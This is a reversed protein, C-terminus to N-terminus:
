LRQGFPCHDDAKYYTDTFDMKELRDSRITYGAAIIDVKESTLAGDLSEFAMDQIDLKLGLKDAVAKMVAADVGDVADGSRFEFPPFEANTGVTLTDDKVLNYKSSDDGSCGAVTMLIAASAGLALARMWKKM